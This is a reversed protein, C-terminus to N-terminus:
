RQGSLICDSCARAAVFEGAIRAGFIEMGATPFVTERIEVLLATTGLVTYPAGTRGISEVTAADFIDAGDRSWFEFINWRNRADEACMQTWCVIRIALRTITLTTIYTTYGLVVMRSKALELRWIRDKLPSTIPRLKSPIPSTIIPEKSTMKFLTNTTFRLQRRTSRGSRWRAMRGTAIRKRLVARSPRLIVLIFLTSRSKNPTPSRSLTRTQLAKSPFITRSPSTGTINTRVIEPSAGRNGIRAIVLNREHSLTWRYLENYCAGKINGLKNDVTEESRATSQINSIKLM